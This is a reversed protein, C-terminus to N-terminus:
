ASAPAVVQRWRKNCKVSGWTQFFRSGGRFFTGTRISDLSFCIDNYQAVVLLMNVTCIRAQIKGCNIYNLGDVEEELNSFYLKATVLCISTKTRWHSAPFWAETAYYYLVHTKHVTMNTVLRVSIDHCVRIDRREEVKSRRVYHM